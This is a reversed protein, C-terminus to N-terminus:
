LSVSVEFKVEYIENKHSWQNYFHSKEAIVTKEEKTITQGLHAFKFSLLYIVKQTRSHLVRSNLASSFDTSHTNNDETSSLISENVSHSTMAPIYQGCDKPRDIRFLSLAIYYTCEQM